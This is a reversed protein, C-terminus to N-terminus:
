MIAIFEGWVDDDQLVSRAHWFIDWLCVFRDTDVLACFKKNNWILTAHICEFLDHIDSDVPAGM